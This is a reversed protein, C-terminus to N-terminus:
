KQKKKAKNYWYKSARRLEDNADRILELQAIIIIHYHNWMELSLDSDNRMNHMTDAIEIARDIEPCTLPPIPPKM